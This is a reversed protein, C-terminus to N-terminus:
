RPWNGQARQGMLRCIRAYAAMVPEARCLRRSRGGCMISLQGNEAGAQGGSVPADVFSATRRPSWGGTRPHCQGFGHHPRRLDGRRWAPLLRGDPGLCVQRLDNDNGVCAM